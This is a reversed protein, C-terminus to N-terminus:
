VIFYTLLVRIRHLVGKFFNFIFNEISFISKKLYLICINENKHISKIEALLLPKKLNYGQGMGPYPNTLPVFDRGLGKGEGVRGM